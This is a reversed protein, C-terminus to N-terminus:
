LFKDFFNSESFVFSNNREGNDMTEMNETRKISKVEDSDQIEINSVNLDEKRNHKKAPEDHKTVMHKSLFTEKKCKYSCHTCTFM